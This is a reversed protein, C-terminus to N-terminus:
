PSDGATTVDIERGDPMRITKRVAQRIYTRLAGRIGLPDKQAALASPDSGSGGCARCPEVVQLGVYKGSGKCDLCDM